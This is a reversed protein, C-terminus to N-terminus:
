VFKIRNTSWKTPKISPFKRFNVFIWVSTALCLFTSPTSQFNKILFNERQERINVLINRCRKGSKGPFVLMFKTQDVSKIVLRYKNAEKVEGRSISLLAEIKTSKEYALQYIFGGGGGNVKLPPNLNLKEFSNTGNISVDITKKKKRRLLPSRNEWESREGEEEKRWSFAFLTAIQSSNQHMLNSYDLVTLM